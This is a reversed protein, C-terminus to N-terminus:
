SSSRLATTRHSPGARHGHVVPLVEGEVLHLPEGPDAVAPLALDELRAAGPAQEVLLVPLGVLHAPVGERVQDPDALLHGRGFPVPEVPLGRPREAPHGVAPADGPEEHVPRRLRHGPRRRLAVALEDLQRVQEPLGLGGPAGHRLRDRRLAEVQHDLDDGQQLPQVPQPQHHAVERVGVDQPAEGGLGGDVEQVAVADAGAALVRDEVLGVGGVPVVRQGGGSEGGGDVAVAVLRGQHDAADEAAVREDAGALGQGQHGSGQVVAAGALEGGQPALRGSRGRGSRPRQRVARLPRPVMGRRRPTGRGAGDPASGATKWCRPGRPVMGSRPSQPGRWSM